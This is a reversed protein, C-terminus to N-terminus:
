STRQVQTQTAVYIGKEKKGRLSIRSEHCPRSFCINRKESFHIDFFMKIQFRQKEPDYICWWIL